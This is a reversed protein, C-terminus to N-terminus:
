ASKRKFGIEVKKRAELREKAIETAERESKLVPRFHNNFVLNFLLMRQRLENISKAKCWKEFCLGDSKLSNLLGTREVSLYELQEVNEYTSESSVYIQRRQTSLTKIYEKKKGVSNECAWISLINRPDDKIEFFVVANFKKNIPPCPVEIVQSYEPPFLTHGISYETQAHVLMKLIKHVSVIPLRLEKSLQHYTKYEAWETKLKKFPAMDKLGTTGWHFNGSFVKKCVLCQYRKKTSGSLKQNRNGYFRIKSSDINRFNSCKKNKCIYVPKGTASTYKVFKEYFSSIIKFNSDSM